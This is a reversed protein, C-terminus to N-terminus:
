KYYSELKKLDKYKNDIQTYARIFKYYDELLLNFIIVPNEEIPIVKLKDSIYYGDLRSMNSPKGVIQGKKLKSFDALSKINSKELKVYSAKEKANAEMKKRIIEDIKNIKKLLNNDIKELHYNDSEKLFKSADDSLRFYNMTPFGLLDSTCGYQGGIQLETQNIMVPIIDGKKVNRLSPTMSLLILVNLNAHKTFILYSPEATAKEVVADVIIDGVNYNIINVQLEVSVTSSGNTSTYDCVSYGKRMVRDISTIYCGNFCKNTYKANLKKILNKETTEKSGIENPKLTIYTTIIKKAEM